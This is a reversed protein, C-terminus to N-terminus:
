VDVELLHQRVTKLLNNWADTRTTGEAIAIRLKGLHLDIITVMDDFVLHAIDSTVNDILLERIEEECEEPSLDKVKNM